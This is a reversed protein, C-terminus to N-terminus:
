PQVEDHPARDGPRNKEDQLAPASQGPTGHKDAPLLLRHVQQRYQASHDSELVAIKTATDGEFGHRGIASGQLGDNWEIM